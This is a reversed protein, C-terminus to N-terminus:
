CDCPCVSELFHSVVALIRSPCKQGKKQDCLCFLIDLGAAAVLVDVVVSGYEKSFLGVLIQVMHWGSNINPFNQYCM